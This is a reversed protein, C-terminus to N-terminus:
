ENWTYVPKWHVPYKAPSIRLTRRVAVVEIRPASSMEAM